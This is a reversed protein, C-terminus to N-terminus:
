SILKDFNSDNKYYELIRETDNDEQSDKLLYATTPTSLNYRIFDMPTITGIPKTM